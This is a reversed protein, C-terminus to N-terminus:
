RASATLAVNIGQQRAAVRQLYNLEIDGPRLEIARELIKQTRQADGIAISGKAAISGYAAVSWDSDPSYSQLLAIMADIDAIRQAGATQIDATAMLVKKVEESVGPPVKASAQKTNFICPGTPHYHTPSGAEPDLRRQLHNWLEENVTSYEAFVPQLAEDPLSTLATRKEVPALEMQWTREDFRALNRARTGIFFSRPAEYELIPFLDSQIPGDGAIAFATQQSALQRAWFAEPTRLGILELDKRPLEREFARRYVSPNSPWPKLSGLLLLDGSGSDWVEMHPFVSGFTRLVLTVIGDHMDYVHFWQAMIGGEKLRNAGLEYYERSFVSGVGAMWPNSPQTIIVDYKKPSLKLITRADEIWIKAIPNTLVGRNWPEFYKAARIVPECNEAIALHQVPYGLVAGGTIGSGLGLIFVDKAGPRAAMPIHALLLQTCLDAHTSADTKGNLRLGLDAPAGVGDGQEIDVTADPADEYFHIKIHKKRLEMTDFSVETERARFVGSSMVHRWGENGVFMFVLLVASVMGSALLLKQLRQRRAALLGAAALGLALALFANRLGLKPMIFFGTLLVGTVAGITNWTLLQGVQRGLPAGSASAARILLPLVAGIFAAPVGLVVMAIGAALFQHFLYGTKTHAIGSRLLRYIDVWSEINFVLLGIWLAAGLLLVTILVTSNWTRLRPSAILASGLGIGLIFAILVIAFSQLSSGFLLAMSRSALIELGMSIGGTLAVLLSASRFTMDDRSLKPATIDTDKPEGTFELRPSLLIAAAAICVNVMAAIQLSAVMGWNQVLYFGAVASGFVAGLSNVSYFRASRRGADLSSRQLFAALLPLTGGMLITPVILLLLSLLGKIALLAFSNELVVSGVRVFVADAVSFLKPFAFAYVGIALEAFGYGRVPKQLHDAKAGFWRNGLALGGMFVALVVTQAYITSGFMQSLYKSWVVEYILATAGSCFFLLLVPWTKNKEANM